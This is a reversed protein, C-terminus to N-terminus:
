FLQVWDGERFGAGSHLTGVAGDEGVFDAVELTGKYQGPARGLYAGSESDYIEDGPTLVKLIDSKMLGTVLGANIFFKKATVQVIKATWVFQDVTKIVEPIVEALALQLAAQTVEMRLMPRPDHDPDFAVSAKKAFTGTKRTDLVERGEQVNFLKVELEVQAFFQQEKFLNMEEGKHRTQISAVRGLLILHVGMRRGERMLEAVRIQDGDVFREATGWVTKMDSEPPFLFHQTMMLGRRLESAVFAPVAFTHIPTHNLFDFVVIKKKPQGYSKAMLGSSTEDGEAMMSGDALERSGMLPGSKSKSKQLDEAPMSGKMQLPFQSCSAFFTVLISLFLASPLAGWAQHVPQSLRCEAALFSGQRGLFQRVRMQLVRFFLVPAM